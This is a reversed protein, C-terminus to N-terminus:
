EVFSPFSSCEMLFCVSQTVATAYEGSPLYKALASRAPPTTTQSDPVALSNLVSAPCLDATVASAKMGPTSALALVSPFIESHSTFSPFSILLQAACAPPTSNTSKM